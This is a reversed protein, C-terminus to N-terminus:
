VENFKLAQSLGRLKDATIIATLNGLEAKIPEAEFRLATM